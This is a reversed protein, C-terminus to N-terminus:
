ALDGGREHLGLGVLFCALEQADERPRAPGDFLIRGLHDLLDARARVDRSLLQLAKTLEEPHGSMGRGRIAQCVREGGRAKGRRRTTPLALGCSGHMDLDVSRVRIMPTETAPASRAPHMASGLLSRVINWSGGRGLLPVSGRLAARIVSVSARGASSRPANGSMSFKGSRMVSSTNISRLSAPSKLDIPCSERPTSTM